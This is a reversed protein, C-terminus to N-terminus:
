FRAGIDLGVGIVDQDRLPDSLPLYFRVGAMMTPDHYRLGLDLTYLEEDTLKTLALELLFALHSNAVFGPGVGLQLDIDDDGDRFQADVIFEGQLFFWDAEVRADGRFRATIVDILWRSADPLTLQLTAAAASAAIASDSATPVYVDFGGGLSTLAGAGTRHHQQAQFGISLNGIAAESDEGGLADEFFVFTLPLRGRLAVSPNLAFNVFVSGGVATTDTLPALSPNGLTMEVGATSTGSMDAMWWFPPPHALAPRPGALAGALVLSALALRKM